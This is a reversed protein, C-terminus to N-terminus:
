DLESEHGCGLAAGRGRLGRILVRGWFGNRWRWRSDCVPGNGPAEQPTRRHIGTDDALKEFTKAGYNARDRFLLIHEHILRGTEHYTELWARDIVSRGEIVVATVAARLQAYTKPTPSPPRAPM